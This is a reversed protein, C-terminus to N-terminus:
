EKIEIKGDLFEKAKKFEEESSDSLLRQYKDKLENFKEPSNYFDNLFTVIFEMKENMYKEFEVVLKEDKLSSREIKIFGKREYRKFGHSTQSINSKNWNYIFLNEDKIINYIKGKTIHDSVIKQFSTYDKEDFFEIEEYDFIELYKDFGEDKLIKLHHNTLRKKWEGVVGGGKRFNFKHFEITNRYSIGDWINQAEDLSLTFGRITAIKQITKASNDIMDEWKIINFYEKVEIFEDLYGKLWKVLGKFMDIDTQKYLAMQERLENEDFSPMYKTIYESTIANISFTASNLVGRPDRISSFKLYKNYYNDDIWSQPNYHSHVMLHYNLSWKPLYILFTFDNLGNIGVYKRVVAENGEIWKPGGVLLDFEGNYILDDIDIKKEFFNYIAQKFEKSAIKILENIMYQKKDYVVKKYKLTIGLITLLLTFGSRPAGIVLMQNM